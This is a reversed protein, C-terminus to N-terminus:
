DSTVSPPAQKPLYALGIAFRTPTAGQVVIGQTKLIGFGARLSSGSYERPSERIIKYIQDATLGDPDAVWALVRFCDRAADAGRGKILAVADPVEVEGHRWWPARDAFPSATGGASPVLVAGKPHGPVGALGFSWRTGAGASKDRTLLAEIAGSEDDRLVRVQTDVAAMVANSGRSTDTDRKGTHDVLLVCAGGAARRIAHMARVMVAVDSGSNEEGDMMANKTDLVVLVPRDTAVAALYHAVGQETLLVPMPIARLNSVGVEPDIDHHALWARARAVNVAQGEAMVYHVVGQPLTTTKGRTEWTMGNAIRLALDLALFSKGGGPPGFVQSLSDRYLLGPVLDVPQPSALFAAGSLVTPREVGEARITARAAQVLRERRVLAELEVADAARMALAAPDAREDDVVDEVLEADLVPLPDGANRLGGTAGAPGAQGATVSGTAGPLAQGSGLPSLRAGPDLSPHVLGVGPRWEQAVAWGIVTRAESEAAARSLVRDGPHPATTMSATFEDALRRLTTRASLRGKVIERVAWCAAAVIAQHRSGERALRQYAGLIEVLRAPSTEAAYQAVFRAVEGDSVASARDEGDPLLDAVYDPLVPVVGTQVFERGVGGVLIIGNNGRVEGWGRGLEGNSNTLRRGPPTAFIHHGRLPDAEFPRGDADVGPLLRTAHFPAGESSIAKYVPETLDDFHDVDLAVVGSRGCHIAVRHDTGAFWAVLQDADRSSREPWGKGLLSGPHRANNARTPLVYFGTRQGPAALALAITLSDADPDIVPVYLADPDVGREIAQVNSSPPGPDDAPASGGANSLM